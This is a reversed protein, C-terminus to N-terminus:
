YCRTRTRHRPRSNSSRVKHFWGNRWTKATADLMKYSGTAMTWPCDTRLVLEGATGLPVECDNEDVVRAEGGARLRGCTGLATPNLESVIPASVESMNFLTYVDVGFRESFASV